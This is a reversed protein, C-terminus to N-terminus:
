RKWFDRVLLYLIGVLFGVYLVLGVWSLGDGRFQVSWRGLTFTVVLLGLILATRFLALRREEENM